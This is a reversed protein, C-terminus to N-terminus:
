KIINLNNVGNWPFIKIGRFYKRRFYKFRYFEM